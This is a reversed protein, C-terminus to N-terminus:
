KKKWVNWLTKFIQNVIYIFYKWDATNWSM